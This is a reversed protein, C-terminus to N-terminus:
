HLMSSYVHVIGCPFTWDIFIKLILSKSPLTGIGMPTGEGYYLRLEMSVSSIVSVFGDLNLGGRM